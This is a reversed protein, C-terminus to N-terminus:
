RHRPSAEREPSPDPRLVSLTGGCRCRYREPHEVLASRKMRALTNGCQRCVVLYRVPRPDSLGLAEPAHTRCIDYGFARNMLAAWHQWRRGHNACGPCTHLIEHALVQRICREDAELLARSLEVTHRGGVTKCCGFRTRARDNVAVHPDIGHSVPVSLSRAQAIVQALLIDPDPRNM